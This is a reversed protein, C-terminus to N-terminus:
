SQRLIGLREGSNSIEDIVYLCNDNKVQVVVIGERSTLEIRAEGETHKGSLLTFSEKLFYIM